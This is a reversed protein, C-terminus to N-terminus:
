VRLDNTDDHIDCSAKFSVSYTVSSSIPIILDHMCKFSKLTGLPVIEERSSPRFFNVIQEGAHSVENKAM